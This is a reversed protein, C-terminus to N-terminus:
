KKVEVVPYGLKELEKSIKSLDTKDKRYVLFITQKELSIELDKIGEIFPVKETLSKVCGACDIKTTYLVEAENAAIKKRKKAKKVEKLEKAAVIKLEKAPYGLKKLETAIKTVDTKDKRYVLYITQKELSVKLDKIGDIFPVKDNLTKECSACDIAISYLVEAENGKLKKSKQASLNLSVLSLVVIALVKLRKM